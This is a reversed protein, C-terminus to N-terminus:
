ISTAKLSVIDVVKSFRALLWSTMLSMAIQPGIIGIPNAHAATDEASPDTITAGRVNCARAFSLIKGLWVSSLQNDFALFFSGKLLVKTVQKIAKTNTNIPSISKTALIIAM